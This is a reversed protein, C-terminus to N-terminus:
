PAAVGGHVIGIQAICTVLQTTPEALCAQLAIIAASAAAIKANATPLDGAVYAQNAVSVAAEVQNTVTLVMSAQTSSITKSSALSNATNVATDALTGVTLAIQNFTQTSATTACGTLQTAGTLACASVMLGLFLSKAVAKSVPNAPVVPEPLFTNHIFTLSALIPTAWPTSIVGAAQLTGVIGTSAALIKDGNALFWQWLKSM